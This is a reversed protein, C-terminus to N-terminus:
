YVNAICYCCHRQLTLILLFKYVNEVEWWYLGLIYLFSVFVNWWFIRAIEPFLEIARKREILTSIIKLLARMFIDDNINAYIFNFNNLKIYYSWVHERICCFSSNTYTTETKLSVNNETINITWSNTISKLDICM